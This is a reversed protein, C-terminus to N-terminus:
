QNINKSASTMIMELARKDAKGPILEFDADSITIVVRNYAVKRGDDAVFSKEVWKVGQVFDTINM